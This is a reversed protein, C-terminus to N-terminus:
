QLEKTEPLQRRSGTTSARRGTRLPECYSNSNQDKFSAGSVDCDGDTINATIKISFALDLRWPEVVIGRIITYHLRGIINLLKQSNVLKKSM